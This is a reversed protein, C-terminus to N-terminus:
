RAAPPDLGARSNCWSVTDVVWNSTNLVLLEDGTNLLEVCGTAWATYKELSPVTPDSDRLEFDSSVQFQSRFADARNAIVLAQRPALVLGQPLTPWERPVWRLYAAESTLRSGLGRGMVAILLIVVLAFFWIWQHTNSRESRNPKRSSPKLEPQLSGIYRITRSTTVTSGGGLPTPNGAHALLLPNIGQGRGLARSRRLPRLCIGPHPQVFGYSGFAFRSCINASGNLDRHIVAGCRPCSFTRGKPAYNNIRSCTRSSYDEAIEDVTM